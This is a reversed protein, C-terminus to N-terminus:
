VKGDIGILESKFLMIYALMIGGTVVCIDAVNFVPWIRFDFMDVVFGLRIRDALNGIAGAVVINLALKVYFNLGKNKYMFYVIFLLVACTLLVFLMRKEQLVGFAAGRNEVYTLHFIGDIVPITGVKSLKGLAWLKSIQDVAM